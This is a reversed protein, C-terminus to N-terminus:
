KSNIIKNIYTPICNKENNYNKSELNFKEPNFFGYFNIKRNDVINLLEKEVELIKPYNESM